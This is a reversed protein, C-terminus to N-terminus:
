VICSVRKTGCSAEAFSGVDSIRSSYPAGCCCYSYYQGITLLLPPGGTSLIIEGLPEVVFPARRCDQLLM